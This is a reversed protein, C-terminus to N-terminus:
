PGTAATVTTLSNLDSFRQDPPTSPMENFYTVTLFQRVTDLEAAADHVRDAFAQTALLAKVEAKFAELLKTSDDNHGGFLADLPPPDGFLAAFANMQDILTTVDGLEPGEGPEDDAMSGGRFAPPM